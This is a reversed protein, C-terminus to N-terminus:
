KKKSQVADCVEKGLAKFDNWVSQANKDDSQYALEGTMPLQGIFAYRRIQTKFFPIRQKKYEDVIMESSTTANPPVMTLLLRYDAKLSHVAKATKLGQELDLPNPTTPLIMLDCQEALEVLDESTPRAKTDIVVYEPRMKMFAQPATMESAVEFSFNGRSGWAMGSRNEDSDMYLTPGLTQCFAALHVATTTKGIGGKFGAVCIIM